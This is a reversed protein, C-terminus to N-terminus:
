IAATSEFVLSVTSNGTVARSGNPPASSFVQSVLSPAVTATNTFVKSLPSQWEVVARTGILLVERTNSTFVM